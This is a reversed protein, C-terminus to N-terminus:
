CGVQGDWCLKMGNWQTRSSESTLVLVEAEGQSSLDRISNHCFGRHLVGLLNEM